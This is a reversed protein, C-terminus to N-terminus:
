AENVLLEKASADKVVAPRIVPVRLFVTTGNANSDLRLGYDPGYLNQFRLNVNSLGVGNGSGYGPQLVLPIKEPPIGVGDDKVTLHLENGALRGSIKIMGPGEKPLLGHNIANEVLPQLSLVPIHYDLLEVPVDQFYRFKSGFRAKELVLYTRVCELEERLTTLSGRRNLTRRFLSALRILLRRAREPDTRSFSIITNLTNFFFHPNIQANLAELRAETLLQRQRDLEALEIQLSLLDALGIALRIIQPPFVGERTQYLKLAGVIEERCKLPVIVAAKLPCNCGMNYRPCCLGQPTHVVKLKGTAIVEKTAETLIRDGARHQDCGVGLFTLVHERDTIAIAPVETINQIIEATKAATAENLGGRLVPLTEHAIQLTSAFIGETGGIEDEEEVPSQTLSCPPGQFAKLAGLGLANSGGFALFALFPSAQFLIIAAITEVLTLAIFLLYFIYNM